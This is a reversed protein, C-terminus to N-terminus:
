QKIKTYAVQNQNEPTMPANANGLVDKAYGQWTPATFQYAGSEGSKGKANFDGGSEHQRIAKALNVAEPDLQTPNTDM